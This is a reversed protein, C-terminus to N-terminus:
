KQLLQSLFVAVATRLLKLYLTYPEVGFKRHIKRLVHWKVLPRILGHVRFVPGM